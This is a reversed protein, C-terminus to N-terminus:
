DRVYYRTYRKGTQPNTKRVRFVSLGEKELECLRSALTASTMNLDLLSDRSTIYGDRSRLIHRLIESQAPSYKEHAFLSLSGYADFTKKQVPTPLPLPEFTVHDVLIEM